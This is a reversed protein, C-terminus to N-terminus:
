MSWLRSLSEYDGTRSSDEALDHLWWLEDLGMGLEGLLVQHLFGFPWAEPREDPPWVEVAPADTVVAAVHLDWLYEAMEASHEVSPATLSERRCMRRREMLDQGGYWHLFGTHLLLVDGTCVENLTRGNYFRRPSRSM